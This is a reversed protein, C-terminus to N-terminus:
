HVTAPFGGMHGVHWFGTTEDFGCFSTAFEPTEDMGRAGHWSRIPVQHGDDFIMIKREFDVFKFDAEPFRRM